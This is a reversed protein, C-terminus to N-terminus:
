DPGGKVQFFVTSPLRIACTKENEDRRYKGEVDEFSKRHIDDMTNFVTEMGVEGECILGGSNDTSNFYVEMQHDGLENM